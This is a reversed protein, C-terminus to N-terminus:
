EDFHSYCIYVLLVPTKVVAKRMWRKSIFIGTSYNSFFPFVDCFDRLFIPSICKGGTLFEFDRKESKQNMEIVKNAEKLFRTTLSEYEAGDTGLQAALHM